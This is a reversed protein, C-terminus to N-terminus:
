IIKLNRVLLDASALGLIFQNSATSLQPNKLIVIMTSINSITILLVIFIGVVLYIMNSQYSMSM